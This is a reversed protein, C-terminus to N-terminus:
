RRRLIYFFFGNSGNRTRSSFEIEVDSAIEQSYILEYDGADANLVEAQRGKMFNYLNLHHRMITFLELSLKNRQSIFAITRHPIPRSHYSPPRMVEAEFCNFKERVGKMLGLNWTWGSAYVTDVDFESLKREIEREDFPDKRQALFQPFSALFMVLIFGALPLHGFRRIMPSGPLTKFLWLLFNWGEAATVAFFPLLILSHRTPSFSLKLSLVLACWSLAVCIFFFGLMRKQLRRATLLGAIGLGSLALFFITAPVFGRHTEPMFGTVSGFVIPLNKAFFWVAKIGQTLLSDGASFQPWFENQPGGNWHVGPRFSEHISILSQYLPYISLGYVAAAILLYRLTEPRSPCSAMRPKGSLRRNHLLYYGLLTLVFAPMFFLVQYQAHSLVTMGAFALLIKKFSFNRPNMQYILLILVCVAAFVGISYSEMQKAYIVNEYSFALLSLAIFVAPTKLRDFKKYFIVFLLLALIGFFCSPFRGWFLAQRYSQEPSVLFYTLLFQLPAYTFRKSVLTLRDFLSKLVEGTEPQNQIFAGIPEAGKARLMITYAVGIDDLHTFHTSLDALRAASGLLILCGIALIKSHKSFNM